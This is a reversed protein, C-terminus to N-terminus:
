TGAPAKIVAADEDTVSVGQHFEIAEPLEDFQLLEGTLEALLDRAEAPTAYFFERRLNVRNVRRDALRAHM